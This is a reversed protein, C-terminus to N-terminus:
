VPRPLPGGAEIVPAQREAAACILGLPVGFFVAHAIVQLVQNTDLFWPYALRAILQFNVLWLAAGFMFGALSQRFSDERNSTSMGSVVLGYLIGFLASLILHVVVGVILVTGVSAAELAQRGLVISAAMRFPSLASQGVGATAIVEVCALIVGALLGSMVGLAVHRSTDREM